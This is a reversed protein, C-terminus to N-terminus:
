KRRQGHCKIINDIYRPMSENSQDIVDISFALVTKFIRELFQTCTEKTVNRSVADERLKKDILHSVNEIANLDPSYAPPLNFLSRWSKEM